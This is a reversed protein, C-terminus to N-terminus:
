RVGVKSWKGKFRIPELLYFTYLWFSQYNLKSFRDPRGKEFVPCYEDITRKTKMATFNADSIIYAMMVQDGRARGGAGGLGTSLRSDKDRSKKGFDLDDGHGAVFLSDEDIEDPQTFINTAIVSKTLTPKHKMQLPPLTRNFRSWFLIGNAVVHGGTTLSVNQAFPILQFPQSLTL